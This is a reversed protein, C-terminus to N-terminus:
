LIVQFRERMKEIVEPPVNHQNVGAHRNEVIISFVKYNYTMALEYYINMESQRTNTNAVAINEVGDKMSKEVREQCDKHALHVKNADWKYVGDVMHYDDAAHCVDGILAGLTSKGSGPLGRLIYLNKM